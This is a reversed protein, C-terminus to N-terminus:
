IIYDDIDQGVLDEITIDKFFDTILTYLKKWTQLTRCNHSRPCPKAGEKLCDVPSLSDETVELIDLLRYKKLPRNLKYGGGKGGLADILHAKSLLSMISELYKNSIEQRNALQKTPIYENLGNHEAM